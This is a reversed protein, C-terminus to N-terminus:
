GGAPRGAGDLAVIAQAMERRTDDLIGADTSNIYRTYGGTIAEFRDARVRRAEELAQRLGANDPQQELREEAAAIARDLAQLYRVDDIGHRYAEFSITPIPEGNEDPYYVWYSGDPSGSGYDQTAWPATGEYGCATNFLGALARHQIPYSRSTFWYSVPRFGMERAHEVLEHRTVSLNFNYTMLVPRNTIDKLREYDRPGMFSEQAHIGADLARQGAARAMAITEDTHPEDVGYFYLDPFGMAKAMRVQRHAEAEWGVGTTRPLMSVPPQTMGAERAYPLMPAGDYLTVANLGYRVQFRLEALFQEPSIAGTREPNIYSRYFSGYYGEVPRLDVPLVELVVPISLGRDPADKVRIIIDGRLEGPPCYEPVQVTLWIQRSEHAPIATVCRGGGHGGQRGTPPMGTRDDRLLLDPISGTGRLATHESFLAIARERLHAVRLELYYRGLQWEPGTLDGLSIEVEEAAELARLSFTATVFQNPSGWLHLTDLVEDASPAMDNHHEAYPDAMRGAVLGAAGAAELLHGDDRYSRPARLAPAEVQDPLPGEAPRYDADLALLIADLATAEAVVDIHATGQNLAMEGIHWWVYRGGAPPGEMGGTVPQENVLVTGRFGHHRLWVQYDGPHPIDAIWTITGEGTVSTKYRSTAGLPETGGVEGPRVWFGLGPALSAATTWIVVPEQAANQASGALSLLLAVSMMCVCTVCRRM